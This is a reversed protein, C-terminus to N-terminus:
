RGEETFLDALLRNPGAQRWSEIPDPEPAPEEDLLGGGQLELWERRTYLRGPVPEAAM